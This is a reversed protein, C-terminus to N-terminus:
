RVSSFPLVEDEDIGELAAYDSALIAEDLRPVDRRWLHKPLM